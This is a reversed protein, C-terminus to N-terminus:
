EGDTDTDTESEDDEAADGDTDSEEESSEVKAKKKRQQNSAGAPAQGTKLMQMQGALSDEDPESIEDDEAVEVAKSQEEVVLTVEMKTDMGVYADCILHMVFTYQGAQPPAQFNAKLTQMEFTPELIEGTSENKFIPKTFTTFTFPPVAMKGQKSDTLFVYWRPSFDRAYYPAHALPPEVPKQDDTVEKGDVIVKKKRGMIADLDDEEPDVDELDSESVEPVGHAGPPIFRGKVVLSVLSGPTIFKEGTVKFFAKAVQLHPIQSAVTTATKYQSETLLGKGVSRSRRISEPLAMFKQLTLSQKKDGEILKAIEPTIYPLQLLPSAGPPMAQILNQSTRYSGIIPATAQFAQAISTFAENLSHAIPAVEYKAEDLAADDLEVRGLYAWLLCLAKRRVVDDIDELKRKDKLSLGAAFPATDSGGIIRSELKSLGSEAKEGKFAEKFESGCSLATIIDGDSISDEYERFLNNASEILIREKTMRQTGYWWKGVMYPLLVGLLGAYVLLVYKGNGDAVIWQPLAIGISYGQKGDPHGFQVYNNRIEEDTLSKYAKTLEVFEENLMEITINKAPDPRVKDPHKTLSLKRYRSKIQKETASESIGLIDYPNYIKPITRATTIILYLMFAM